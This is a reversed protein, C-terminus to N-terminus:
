NTHNEPVTSSPFMLEVVFQIKAEGFQKEETKGGSM